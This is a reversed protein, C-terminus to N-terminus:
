AQLETCKEALWLLRERDAVPVMMHIATAPLVSRVDEVEVLASSRDVRKLLGTGISGKGDTLGVRAGAALRLVHIHHAAEGDLTVTAGAAFHEAVWFRAVSAHRDCGVM